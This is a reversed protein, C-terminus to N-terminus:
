AGLQWHLGVSDAIAVTRASMAARDFRPNPPVCDAALGRVSYLDSARYLNPSAMKVEVTRNSCASNINGELLVLNGLRHKVLDYDADSAFGYASVDFSNKPDQPLVHEVTLGDAILQVLEQLDLAPKNVARRREEELQLLIRQVAPNRYMDGDLLRAQMRPDPMFRDCFALLDTALQDTTSQELARTIKVIDAQPNTGRLKFVRLDVLALLENLTRGNHLSVNTTWRKLHLRIALPYLTASLDQVVWLLYAERDDRTQAVLQELGGFFATLDDTYRRIFRELRTSDARLHHLAPKLFDKLVTEPTASYDGSISVGSGSVDFAFYHYRLVDDERFTDRDIQRIKYGSEAGLEKIRSFSRFACGFQEAIHKDLAGDLYRNSNYILLSKVIDMRALPVGRDNVTQFMRIAKGESPEIFELVEMDGICKLWRTIADQGCDQRVKQVRQRIWNYADLLRKQGDSLPSPSQEELLKRFFDENARQVQLKAGTVPHKIFINRYHQKIGSDDVLDILADLLITLTTLRQQGDVVQMPASKDSNSLIFTGLYHGGKAELTEEIDEFMDDVNETSWAYDRQYNPIIFTKGTFFSEITKTSM